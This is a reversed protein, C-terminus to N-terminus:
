DKEPTNQLEGANMPEGRTGDKDRWKKVQDPTVPGAKNGWESRVYTIVAAIQADTFSEKWPPMANNFDAGKVNLPGAVGNLVIRIIRNPGEALVWESGALPPFQGALGQGNGQHCAVCATNFVKAGENRVAQIPDVPNAGQVDAITYYPDYVEAPFAGAKNMVDGGRDLIYLDAFYLLVLTLIIFVIPIPRSEATPEATDAFVAARSGRSEGRVPSAASSYPQNKKNKKSM